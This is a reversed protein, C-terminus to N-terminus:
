AVGRIVEADTPILDGTEVLVLQGARLSSSPVARPAPDDEHALLKVTTEAKTARLSDARARGRGEALAEAFNAFVVCVWLWFAIQLNVAWGPAGIALDRLSLITTLAATVATVFIVANAIM